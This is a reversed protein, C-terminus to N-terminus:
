PSKEWSKIDDATGETRDRAMSLAGFGDTEEPAAEGCRMLYRSGWPDKANRKENGALLDEVQEPCPEENDMSWRTYAGVLRQTMMWATKRRSKEWSKFLGVALVAMVSSIIALVIMIEILTMGRQARRNTAMRTVESGIWEM